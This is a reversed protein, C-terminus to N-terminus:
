LAHFGFQGVTKLTIQFLITSSGHDNNISTYRRIYSVNFIFCEDEYAGGFSTAVLKSSQLDRRAAANLRWNGWKATTGLSIENRPTTTQNFSTPTDYLTYPNDITYIYGGTFRLWSPGASVLADAFRIQFSKHDFRQRTTIDLYSNPTFSLRSVIDTATDQLGSWVPFANDKQTRYGQGVLGDMMAGSPFYWAAHLAVNARVGGELRDIGTYRNLSFLNADTFEIDLSDENPIRTGMFAGGRPAVILQAIPEVLQSGWSGADRMMPLRIMAAATPMAQASSVSGPSGFNPQQDFQHAVYGASDMHLAFNWVDGVRGIASRGWGLSLSARQTNTGEHRIVNFAGTDVSVRGGFVNPETVLHYEYRPLVFPLKSSSVSSTLGQYARADLRTYAGQGFGEIYAQSTLVAQSGVIRFDRMYDISSARNVDFGWRWTDDIAFQGKSFVHGAVGQDNALSANITVTGDNFRRRYQLDMAPGNKTAVIGTITADSQADIVWYYPVTTFGGLHKSYGMSPVLLGSARKQSPDPHTLYPLWLVPLGFIDVVADRYEIFKNETDQLAERARIQWLPARTPDQACLNCTSYVVRSLENLHGDTRRAGNAVLRGNEALLARMGSLVGDKMGGTLEAYDAFVTQGTPELLVVHGSAAAVNTNRDFTVKDALLMRDNQWLEVHGELTVLGADSDYTASDAQYYAPQDRQIPATPVGLAGSLQARADAAAGAALVLGLLLAGLLRAPLPRLRM